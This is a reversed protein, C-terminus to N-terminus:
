VERRRRRAEREWEEADAVEKSRRKREEQGHALPDLHVEWDPLPHSRAELVYEVSALGRAARGTITSQVFNKRQADSLSTLIPYPSKRALAAGFPQTHLPIHPMHTHPQPM